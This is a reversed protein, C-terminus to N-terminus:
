HLLKQKEKRSTVNIDKKKQEGNAKLDDDFMDDAFQDLRSPNSAPRNPNRTNPSNNTGRDSMKEGGEIKYFVRNRNKNHGM